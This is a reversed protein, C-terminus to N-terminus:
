RVTSISNCPAPHWPRVKVKDHSPITKTRVPIAGSNTLKASAAKVVQKQIVGVSVEVNTRTWNTQLVAKATQNRRAARFSRQHCICHPNFQLNCISSQYLSISCTKIQLRFRCDEIKLLSTILVKKWSKTVTDMHHQLM